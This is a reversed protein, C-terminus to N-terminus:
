PTLSFGLMKEYFRIDNNKCYDTFNKSMMSFYEEKTINNLKLFDISRQRDVNNTSYYHYFPTKKGPYIIDFGNNILEISQVIEEEWFLVWDPICINKAFESDGFMFMAVIKDLTIFGNKDLDEEQQTNLVDCEWYPITQNDIIFKDKIWKTYGLYDFFSEQNYWGLYGSLVIKKNNNKSKIDEFRDIIYKDWGVPFFTHADIQLFYDENDYMSAASLRGIGIGLNNLADYYTSKIREGVFEKLIENAFNQDGCFSIGISLQTEDSTNELL